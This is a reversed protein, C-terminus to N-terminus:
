RVPIVFADVIGAARVGDARGGSFWFFFVGAVPRGGSGFRATHDGIDITVCGESGLCIYVFRQEPVLVLSNILFISCPMLSPILGSWLQRRGSDDRCAEIHVVGIM